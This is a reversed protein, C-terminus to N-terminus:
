DLKWNFQFKAWGQEPKGDKMLPMFKCQAFKLTAKDLNKFGSSQEVKSDIVKGDVGIQLALIVTGQEEHVLSARPYEPMDCHTQKDLTASDATEAAEAAIAIVLLPAALLISLRTFIVM